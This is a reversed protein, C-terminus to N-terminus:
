NLFSIPKINEEEILRLLILAYLGHHGDSKIQLVINKTLHFNKLEKLIDMALKYAKQYVILDLYSGM